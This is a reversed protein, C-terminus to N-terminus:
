ERNWDQCSDSEFYQGDNLTVSKSGSASGEDIVDDGSSDRSIKYECDFGSDIPGSTRYTGSRVDTGVLVSAEGGIRTATATGTPGPTATPTAAAQRDLEAKRNDLDTQRKDLEKERDDLQAQRDDLDAERQDLEPSDTVVVPTPEPTPLAQPTQNRSGIGLGLFLAALGVATATLWVRRTASHDAEPEDDDAEPNVPYIVRSTVSSHTPAPTREYGIDAARAAQLTSTSNTSSPVSSLVATEPAPQAPTAAPSDAVPGRVHDTWQAGDWWRVTGHADPYWGAPIDNAM